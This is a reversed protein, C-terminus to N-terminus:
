KQIALIIYPVASQQTTTKSVSLSWNEHNIVVQKVRVTRKTIHGGNQQHMFSILHLYFLNNFLAWM